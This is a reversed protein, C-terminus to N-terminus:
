FKFLGGRQDCFDRLPSFHWRACRGSGPSGRRRCSCPCQAITSHTQRYSKAADTVRVSGTASCTLLPESELDISLDKGLLGQYQALYFMPAWKHKPPSKLAPDVSGKWRLPPLEGREARELLDPFETRM